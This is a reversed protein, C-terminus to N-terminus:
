KLRPWVDFKEQSSGFQTLLTLSSFLEVDPESLNTQILKSRGVREIRRFCVSLVDSSQRRFLRRYECAIKLVRLSSEYRRAAM